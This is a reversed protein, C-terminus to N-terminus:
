CKRPILFSWNYRTVKRLQPNNLYRIVGARCEKPIEVGLVLKLINEMANIMEKRAAARRFKLNLIHGYHPFRYELNQNCDKYLRTLNSNNTYNMIKDVRLFLFDYLTLTPNVDILFTKMMELEMRYGLFMSENETKVKKRENNLYVIKNHYNALVQVALGNEHKIAFDIPTLGNRNRIECNAGNKLLKEVHNKKCMVVKHLVTNGQNDQHNIKAGHECLLDIIQEDEAFFLVTQGNSTVVSVDANFFLLLKIMDINKQKRHYFWFALQLPTRMNGGYRVIFGPINPNAGRMLLMKAVEYFNNLVALYLPTYFSFHEGVEMKPKYARHFDVDWTIPLLKRLSEIDNKEVFHCIMRYNRINIPTPYTWLVEQGNM